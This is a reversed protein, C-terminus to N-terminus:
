MDMTVQGKHCAVIRTMVVMVQGVHSGLRNNGNDNKQCKEVLTIM